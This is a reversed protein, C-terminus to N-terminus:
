RCLNEWLDGLAAEGHHHQAPAGWRNELLRVDSKSLLRLERHGIQQYLFEHPSLSKLAHRANAPKHAANSRFLDALVACRYLRTLLPEIDGGQELQQKMQLRLLIAAQQFAQAKPFQQQCLSMALDLEGKDKLRKVQDQWAQSQSDAADVKAPQPGSQAEVQTPAERLPAAPPASVTPTASTTEPVPRTPVSAETVAYAQPRPQGFDPLDSTALPPLERSREVTDRLNRQRNQQLWWVAVALLGAVVILLLFLM